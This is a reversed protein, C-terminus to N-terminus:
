YKVHILPNYKSTSKRTPLSWHSTFTPVILSNFVSPVHISTISKRLWEGKKRYLRCVTFASPYGLLFVAFLASDSSRSATPWSRSIRSPYLDYFKIPGVQPRNPLLTVGATYIRYISELERIRRTNGASRDSSPLCTYILTHIYIHTFCASENM